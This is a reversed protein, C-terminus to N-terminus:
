RSGSSAPSHSPQPNGRRTLRRRAVVYLTALLFLALLHHWALEYRVWYGALKVYETGYAVTGEEYRWWNTADFGDAPAGVMRLGQARDGLARRLVMQARRTHWTTTVVMVTNGPRSELFRALAQAEDFTGTLPEGELLTIRNPPVGRALLVRRDIEYEPPVVGDEAEPLLADPCLLAQRALGAKVLAAAVFPRTSSGGGLVLVYDAPAPSESVDLFRAVPPLLRDPLLCVLALPVALALLWGAQWAWRRWGPTVRGSPAVERVRRNGM